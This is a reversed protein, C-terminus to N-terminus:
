AIYGIRPLLLKYNKIKEEKKMTYRPSPSPLTLLEINPYVEILKKFHRRYLNEVHRSTFFIKEIKNGRVIKTIGETNFTINTLNIDLNSNKKRECSYIIDTLAMQLEEFLRQQKEKTTFSEGYVEGMIPWFQNRGNAYFWEYPNSPKTVFSGIMLFRVKPPVFDGFPHTELM